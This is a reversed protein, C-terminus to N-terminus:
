NCIGSELIVGCRTCRVKRDVFLCAVGLPFWLIAALIGVLGFSSNREHGKQLCVMEPHDPPLLSTIRQQTVPHVYHYVTVGTPSTTTTVPMGILPTGHVAPMAPM